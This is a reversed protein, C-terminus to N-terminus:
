QWLCAQQAMATRRRRAPAAARLRGRPVTTPDVRRILSPDAAAQRGGPACCVAFYNVKRAFLASSRSTPLQSRPRANLEM